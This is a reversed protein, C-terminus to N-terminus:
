RSDTPVQPCKKPAGRVALDVSLLESVWQNDLVSLYLEKDLCNFAAMRSNDLRSEAPLLDSLVSLRVAKAREKDEETPVVWREPELHEPRQQNVKM